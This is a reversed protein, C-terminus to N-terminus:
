ATKKRLKKNNLLEIPDLPKKSSPFYKLENHILEVTIPLLDLIEGDLNIEIHPDVSIEVKKCRYHKVYKTQGLKGKKFTLLLPLIKPKFFKTIYVFDMLGDHPNADVCLPLMGGGWIGNCCDMMFFSDEIEEQDDIKVKFKHFKISFLTLLLAFHYSAKTKIRKRLKSERKLLQIDFGTGLLNFAKYDGIKLYDLHIPENNLINDLCEDIDVGIGLTRAFDNGTGAPIFGIPVKKTDMGNLVEYFTGDGGVAILAQCDEKLSSERALEVSHGPYESILIKFDIKRKILKYELNKLAEERIKSKRKGSAIVYYM